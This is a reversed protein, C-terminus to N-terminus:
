KWGREETPAPRQGAGRSIELLTNATKFSSIQRLHPTLNSLPVAPSPSPWSPYQLGSSKAEAKAKRAPM